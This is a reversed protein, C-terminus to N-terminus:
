VSKLCAADAKAALEGEAAEISEEISPPAGPGKALERYCREHLHRTAAFAASAEENTAYRFVPKLAVEATVANADERGGMPDM